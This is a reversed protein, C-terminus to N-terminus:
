VGGGVLVYEKNKELFAVQKELKKEDCWRDDDDLVAIYTGRAQSIGRNATGAPGLNLENRLPVVQGHRGSLERLVEFTGDGSFDDIALVEINKYTQALASGIAQVVYEKRNHTPIIVSVLPEQM